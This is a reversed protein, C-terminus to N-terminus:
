RAERRMASSTFERRNFKVSFDMPSRENDLGEIYYRREELDYTTELTSFVVPVEYHNVTHAESVQVLQGEKNYEEALLIQWSDEDVYYRRKTYIHSMGVRLNAEIVWVRHLEHRLLEPTLHKPGVIDDVSLNGQHVQYANYPVYKEQKGLLSWEYFDPAGNFMDVQDVTRIGNSDIDATDYALDPTRRVRRQGPMYIWSKRPSQVQDLTEHVLTMQGSLKAPALTKRKMLFIKNDIDELTIGPQSYAWHYKYERTTVSKEGGPTTSATSSVYSSNLGRFRLTHNWLVELGNKPIPFPSSMLTNKVGSGYKQLESTTANKKVQDYVFQPYAASRHTPYVNMFYTPNAKILSIQGPTLKDKHQDVNTHDIVLIIRDKKYPDIHFSGPQYGAVPKKLGGTWSPITGSKNGRVQAGMPTLDKGLRAAEQDSVKGWANSQALCAFAAVMLGIYRMVDLAEKNKKALQHYRLGISTDVSKDCM